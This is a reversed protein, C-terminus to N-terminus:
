DRRRLLRMQERGERGAYTRQPTWEKVVEFHPSFLADLETISVGFPPGEEVGPDLYFVALLHAGPKLATVVARVYDARREVEIACFCTHEWVWDFSARLDPPLDFLDACLYNEGGTKAFAEARAIAGPAIDLGTVEGGVRALARVDHGLGCGPVLIKGRPPQAQLFDVLAPHPAGKDWPTDATEYRQQWDTPM